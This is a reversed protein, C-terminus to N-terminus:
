SEMLHRATEEFGFWALLNQNQTDRALPDSKDWKDGFLASPQKGTDDVLEALLGDIERQHRRYFALTDRYYILSGVMGSQCGGYMLDDYAGQAGDEYDRGTEKLWTAVKRELPTTPKRM